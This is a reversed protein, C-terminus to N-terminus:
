LRRRRTLEDHYENRQAQSRLFIVTTVLGLAGLGSASLFILCLMMVMLNQPSPRLVSVLELNPPATATPLPTFTPALAVLEATPTATVVVFMQTPTEPLIAVATDAPMTTPTDAPMLTPTDTPWPTWTPTESIMSAAIMTLEASLTAAADPTELPSFPQTPMELPSFVQTPTELPSLPQNPVELPSLPQMPTELPSIWGIPTATATPILTPAPTSGPQAEVVIPTPTGAGLEAALASSPTPTVGQGYGCLDFVEGPTGDTTVEQLRFCYAEGCIIETADFTYSAGLNADGQAIRTGVVRYSAEPESALKSLIKFGELNFESVTAWELWVSYQAPTARYYELQVAANAPLYVLLLIVAAILVLVVSGLRKGVPARARRLNVAEVLREAIRSVPRTQGIRVDGSLALGYKRPRVDAARTKRATRGM